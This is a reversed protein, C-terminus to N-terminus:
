RNASFRKRAFMVVACVAVLALIMIYPMSDLNIGTDIKDNNKNNTIDVSDSASDIKKNNDGLAYTTKYGDSTYDAEEVTYTVGYPINTFTVTEDHKLNIEATATGSTWASAPITYDTGGDSYSIAESVEKGEPATFTVTVAFENQQDGLNGTVIKKVALSGASYENDNFTNTKNGGEDETHVAAVRIYGGEDQLVTVVLKIDSTRYTVGATLGQTEKITYTYVGVSSYEPLTITIDKSKTESGAEGKEYSVSGITPLPMNGTAVGAAADKVSTREISFGFTEAPSTTSPNTAEYSKKITVTKMDTYSPTTDGGTAMAVAGMNLVMAASFIIAAIKKMKM